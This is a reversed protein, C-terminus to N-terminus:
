QRKNDGHDSRFYAGLGRELFDWRRKLSYTSDSQVTEFYPTNQSPHIIGCDMDALLRAQSGKVRLVGALLHRLLVDNGQAQLIMSSIMNRVEEEIDDGHLPSRVRAEPDHSGHEESTVVPPIDNDHTTSFIKHLGGHVMGQLSGCLRAISGEQM